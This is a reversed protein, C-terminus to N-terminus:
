VTRSRATKMQQRRTARRGSHHPRPGLVISRVCVGLLGWVSIRRVRRRSLLPESLDPIVPRMQGVTVIVFLWFWWTLVFIAAGCMCLGLKLDRNM